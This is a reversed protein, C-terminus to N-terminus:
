TMKSGNRNGSAREGIGKKINIGWVGNYQYFM